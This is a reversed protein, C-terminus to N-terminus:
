FFDILESSPIHYPLVIYFTFIYFKDVYRPTQKGTDIESRRRQKQLRNVFFSLNLKFELDFIM